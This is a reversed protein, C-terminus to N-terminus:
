CCIECCYVAKGGTISTDAPVLCMDPTCASDTVPHLVSLIPQDATWTLASSLVAIHLICWLRQHM